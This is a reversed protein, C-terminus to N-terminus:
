DQPRPNSGWPPLVKKKWPRRDVKKNGHERCQAAEKGGGSSRQYLSHSNVVLDETRDRTPASKRGEAHASAIKKKDLHCKEGCRLFFDVASLNSSGRAVGLQNRILRRLWEAMSGLTIRLHELLFTRCRGSEFQRPCLGTSKSDVAKVVRGLHRKYIWFISFGPKSGPAEDNCVVCEVSQALGGNSPYFTTGTPNSGM